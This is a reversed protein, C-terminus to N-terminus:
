WKRSLRRLFSENRRREIEEGLWLLHEAYSGPTKAASGLRYQSNRRHEVYPSFLDWSQLFTTTVVSPVIDEYRVYKRRVLFSINNFANLVLDLQDLDVRDESLRQIATDMEKRRDWESDFPTDLQKNIEQGYQYFFWRARRLDPNDVYQLILLLAQLRRAQAIERVQWILIVSVFISIPLWFQAYGELSEFFGEM